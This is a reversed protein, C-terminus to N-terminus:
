KIILEVNGTFIKWLLTMLGGTLAGLCTRVFMKGWDRRKTETREQAQAVATRVQVDTEIVQFRGQCIERHQNFEKRLEGTKQDILGRIERFGNDFGNDVKKHLESFGSNMALIVDGLNLDPM